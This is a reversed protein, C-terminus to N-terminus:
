DTIEQVLDQEASFNMFNRVTCLNSLFGVLLHFMWCLYKHLVIACTIFVVVRSV